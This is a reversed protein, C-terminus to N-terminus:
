TRLRPDFYAYSLDVLFNVGIVLLSAILVVAQVVFIDQTLVSDIMLQGLGRVGFVTEIIAASGLLRGTTLGIVTVIPIAAPKLAYKLIVTRKRLGSARATTIYDKELTDRMSARVFRTIEAMPLGALAIWPLVLHRAWEVPSSGFPEYGMAPLWPRAIAFASVLFLAAVFGPTAIALSTFLSAFRDAAGGPRLAALIGLPFALATALLLAGCVLSLSIMAKESILERVPQGTRYSQGFDGRVAASLFRAYRALLPDNLGLSQRTAELEAPTAREGAVLAAPDGPALDLLVFAIFSVLVLLPALALLRRGFFRLM